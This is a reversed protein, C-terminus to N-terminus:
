KEVAPGANSDYLTSILMAKYYAIIRVFSSSIPGKDARVIYISALIIYLYISKLLIIKFLLMKLTRLSESLIQLYEVQADLVHVQLLSFSSFSFFFFLDM